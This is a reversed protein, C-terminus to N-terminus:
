VKENKLYIIMTGTLWLLAELPRCMLRSVEYGVSPSASNQKKKTRHIEKLQNFLITSWVTKSSGLSRFVTIGAGGAVKPM